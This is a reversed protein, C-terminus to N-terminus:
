GYNSLFVEATNTQIRRHLHEHIKILFYGGLYLIFKDVKLM